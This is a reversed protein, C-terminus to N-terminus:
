LVANNKECKVNTVYSKLFHLNERMERGQKRM